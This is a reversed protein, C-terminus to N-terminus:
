KIRGWYYIDKAVLYFVLNLTTKAIYKKISIQYIKLKYPKLLRLAEAIDMLYSKYIIEKVNSLTRYGGFVFQKGLLRFQHFHFCVANGYPLRTQNWPALLLEKDQLIHINDGYEEPWKDLYKQDGFKNKEPIESCWDICEDQWKKLVNESGNKRFIVFQVCFQGSVASQDYEPAYSHDTILVSKESNTFEAFIAKPSKRFWMDADLYTVRGIEKNTKFVVSPAFPTLTWCYEARTRIKKLKLLEESEFVDRHILKVNNLKLQELINYTSEDICLIWLKYNKIWREMSIHLALGQPLFQSDFLTM